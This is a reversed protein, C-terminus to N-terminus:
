CLKLNFFSFTLDIIILFLWYSLAYRLIQIKFHYWPNDVLRYLVEVMPKNNLMEKWFILRRIYLYVAKHLSM